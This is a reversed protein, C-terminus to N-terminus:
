ALIIREKNFLRTVIFVFLATYAINSVVTLGLLLALNSGGNLLSNISVTLNLVPVFSTWIPPTNGFARSVLSIMMFVIMFPGLYSTAEKVTKALSSIAVGLAVFFLLTSVIILFLLFVELPAFPIADVGLLNPIAMITGIFSVTGSALALLALSLVKGLVFENRRIPTLLLCSLTGREKEGAIAEPCLSLISSFLISITLMPLLLSFVQVIGSDKNGLNAEVKTKNEINVTYNNYASGIISSTLSYLTSSANSEGNYFLSVNAKNEEVESYIEKEFNDSFVVLLHYKQEKILTKYDGVENTKIETLEMKNGKNELELTVDLYSLLVPIEESEDNYNDTYVLQYTTNKVAGNFNDNKMFNGMITYLAYIMIGPFFLAFVMRRDSFVRKMEKLFITIINKM